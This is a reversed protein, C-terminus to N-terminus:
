ELASMKKQFERYEHWDNACIIIERIGTSRAAYQRITRFMIEACNHLPIGYFGSGMPPVAIQAISHEEACRLANSLTASLKSETDEEQFAPGAAHVIYGAKMNGASTM